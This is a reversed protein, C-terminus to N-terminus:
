DDERKVARVLPPCPMDKCILRAYYGEQLAVGCETYGRAQYLPTRSTDRSYLCHPETMRAAKDEASECGTISVLVSALLIALIGAASFTLQPVMFMAVETLETRLYSLLQKM